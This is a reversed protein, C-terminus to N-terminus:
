AQTELIQYPRTALTDPIKGLQLKHEEVTLGLQTFRKLLFPLTVGVKELLAQNSSYIDLYLQEDRIKAKTLLEGQEGIDLKMTLHWQTQATDSQQEQQRERERRILLEAPKQQPLLGPLVYYFSDNGQLTQEMNGLKASQHGALLGKLQKLLNQQNDIQAFERVQRGTISGLLSNPTNGKPASTRQRNLAQDIDEHTKFHRGLLSVQLLQILGSLFNQGTPPSSLTLPSQLWAPSTLLQKLATSQQVSDTGTKATVPESSGTVEPKIASSEATPLKNATSLNLQLQEIVSNVPKALAPNASAFKQLTTILVNLSSQLSDTNSVNIRNASRIFQTLATKAEAPLQELKHKAISEVDSPIVPKGVVNDSAGSRVIAQQPPSIDAKPAGAKTSLSFTQQTPQGPNSQLETALPKITVQPINSATTSQINLQGMQQPNVKPALQTIATTSNTTVALLQTKSGTITVESGKISVTAPLMPSLQQFSKAAAPPLSQTVWSALKPPEVNLPMQQTVAQTLKNAVPSNLPVNVTRLASAPANSSPASASAPTTLVSSSQPTIQVQLQNQRLSVTLTVTAPLAPKNTLLASLSTESQKAAKALPIDIILPREAGANVRISANDQQIVTAQLTVPTTLTRSLATMLSQFQAQSVQQRITEPSLKLLTPLAVSGTDPPLLTKVPVPSGQPPQIPAEAQLRVLLLNEASTLRVAPRVQLLQQNTAMFVSTNSAPLARSSKAQEASPMSVQAAASVNIQAPQLVQAIRAIAQSKTTM